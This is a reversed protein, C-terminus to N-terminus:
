FSFLFFAWFVVFLYISFTSIDRPNKLSVLQGGNIWTGWVEWAHLDFAFSHFLLTRSQASFNFGYKGTCALLLSVVNRHTVIVGKPKGTSGSTYEVYAPDDLTVAPFNKAAVEAAAGDEAGAAVVDDVVVVKRAPSFGELHTLLSAHLASTTIVIRAGSDALVSRVRAPPYFEPCLPLYAHGSLLVGLCSVPNTVVRDIYVGVCIGSEAGESALKTKQALIATALRTAALQMATYTLGNEGLEDSVAINEPYKLAANRVLACLTDDLGIPLM